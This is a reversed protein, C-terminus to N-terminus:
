CFRKSILTWRNATDRSYSLESLAAKALALGRGREAMADPLSVENLDTQLPIGGDVFFIHVHGPLVRVEMRLYVARGQAAHEVINAGIEGAAISMQTCVASPVEPHAAWTEDLVRGIDALVGPGTDRELVRSEARNM